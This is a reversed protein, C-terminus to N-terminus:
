EEISPFDAFFPSYFRQVLVLFRIHLPQVTRALRPPLALLYVLFSLFQMMTFV